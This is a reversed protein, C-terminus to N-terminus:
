PQGRYGLPEGAHARLVETMGFLAAHDLDQGAARDRCATAVVLARHRQMEYFLDTEAPDAARPVTLTAAIVDLLERVARAPLQDAM